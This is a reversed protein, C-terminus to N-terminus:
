VPKERFISLILAITQKKYKKNAKQIKKNIKEGRKSEQHNDAVKGNVATM